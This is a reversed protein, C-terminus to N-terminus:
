NKEDEEEQVAKYKEVDESQARVWQRFEKISLAKKAGDVSYEGLDVGQIKVPGQWGVLITKALVEVMVEDAKAEAAEGKGDITAKNKGYLRSFLRGFNKNGYRAIKFSTKTNYPVWRGDTELNEDTAFENFLDM